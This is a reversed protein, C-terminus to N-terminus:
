HCLHLCLRLAKRGAGDHAFWRRRADLQDGRWSGLMRVSAIDVSGSALSTILAEDEPYALLIAYLTDGQQTFRIDAPTFPNRKTDTFAGEPIETPGEGFIDWIRTDYIAEGNVQLWHASIACCKKNSKPFPAM